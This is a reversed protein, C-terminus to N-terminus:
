GGGPPRHPQFAPCDPLGQWQLQLDSHPCTPTAWGGRSWLGGPGLGTDCKAQVGRPPHGQPRLTEWACLSPGVPSQPSAPPAPALSEPRQGQTRGRPAAPSAGPHHAGRPLGWPAAGGGGQHHLVGDERLPEAGPRREPQPLGRRGEQDDLPLLADRKEGVQVPLFVKMLVLAGAADEGPRSTVPVPPRLTLSSAHSGVARRGGGQPETAPPQPGTSTSPRPGCSRPGSEQLSSQLPPTLGRAAAAGPPPSRAHPRDSRGAQPLGHPSRATHTPPRSM